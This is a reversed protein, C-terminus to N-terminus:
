ACALAKDLTFTPFAEEGFHLARATMNWENWEGLSFDRLWEKKLVSMVGDHFYHTTVFSRLVDIREENKTYLGLRALCKNPRITKPFWKGEVQTFGFSLIQSRDLTVYNDGGPNENTLKQHTMVYIHENWFDYISDEFPWNAVIDDGMMRVPWRLIFEVSVGKLILLYIFCVYMYVTNFDLTVFDGSPMGVKRYFIYGDSRIIFGANLQELYWNILACLWPNKAFLAAFVQRIFDRQCKDSGSIDGCIFKNPLGLEVFENYLERYLRDYGLEIFSNGVLSVRVSQADAAPLGFLFLGVMYCHLPKPVFHRPKKVKGDEVERLESKGCDKDYVVCDLWGGALIWNYFNEPMYYALAHYKSPFHESWPFGAARKHAKRHEHVIELYEVLTPIRVSLLEAWQIQLIKQITPINKTFLETPSLRQQAYKNIGDVLSDHSSLDPLGYTPGDLTQEPGGVLRAHLDLKDVNRYGKLKGCFSLLDSEQADNPIVCKHHLVKDILM